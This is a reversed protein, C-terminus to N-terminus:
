FSGSACRRAGHETAGEKEVRRQAQEASDCVDRKGRAHPPQERVVARGLRAAVREEALGREVRRDTEKGRREDEGEGRAGRSARAGRPPARRRRAGPARACVLQAARERARDPDRRERARQEVERAGHEPEARASVKPADGEDNARRGEGRDADDVGRREDFAREVGSEGVGRRPAPRPAAEGRVVAARRGARGCDADILLGRGHAVFVGRLRARLVAEDDVACCALGAGARQACRQEAFGILLLGVRAFRRRRPRWATRAVRRRRLGLLRHGGGRRALLVPHAPQEREDCRVARGHDRRAARQAHPQRERERARVEDGLRDARERAAAAGVPARRPAVDRRQERAARGVRREVEAREEQKPKGLLLEDTAQAAVQKRRHEFLVGAEKVALARALHRRPEGGVALRHGVLEREDEAEADLRAHADAADDAVHGRARGLEREDGEGDDGDDAEARLAVAAHLARILHADLGREGGCVRARELRDRARTGDKRERALPM